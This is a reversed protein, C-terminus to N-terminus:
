HECRRRYDDFSSRIYAYALRTADVVCKEDTRLRSQHRAFETRFVVSASRNDEWIVTGDAVRVMAAYVRVVAQRETGTHEVGADVVSVPRDALDVHEVRSLMVYDANVAEGVSRAVEPSPGAAGEPLAAALEAEPVLAVTFPLEPQLLVDRQRVLAPLPVPVTREEGDLQKAVQTPVGAPIIAVCIDGALPNSEGTSLATLLSRAASDAADAILKSDPRSYGKGLIKKITQASGYVYASFQPRSTGTPTWVAKARLWIERVFGRQMGYRDITVTLVADTAASPAGASPVVSVQQMGRVGRLREAVAKTLADAPNDLTSEQQRKGVPAVHHTRRGFSIPLRMDTLEPKIGPKLTTSVLTTRVVYALPAPSQTPSAAAAAAIISLLVLPLTSKVADLTDASLRNGASMHKATAAEHARGIWRTRFAAIVTVSNM